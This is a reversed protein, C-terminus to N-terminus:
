GVLFIAASRPILWRVTSFCRAATIALVPAFDSGANVLSAIAAPATERLQRQVRPTSWEVERPRDVAALEATKSAVRTRAAQRMPSRPARLRRGVKGLVRRGGSKEGYSHGPM